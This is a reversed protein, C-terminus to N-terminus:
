FSNEKNFQMQTANGFLSLNQGYKHGFYICAMVDKIAMEWYQSNHYIYTIAMFLLVPSFQLSDPGFSSQSNRM